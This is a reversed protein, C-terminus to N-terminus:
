PKRYLIPHHAKRFEEMEYLYGLWVVNMNGEIELIYENLMNVVDTTQEKKIQLVYVFMGAFLLAIQITNAM